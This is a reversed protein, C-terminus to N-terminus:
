GTTRLGSAIANTLLLLEAFSEDDERSGHERWRKLTAIQTAHLAALPADRLQLTKAMRPRRQAFPVGYLATIHEHAARFESLIWEMFRRQVDDDTVLRAYAGFVHESASQLTTEINTFLYRVTEDEAVGACLREWRDPAGERLARLATGVGYWGPLYFRAQNWSFVWPIARLDDLTAAGGRRAPRSGIKSREIVDIPTAERFFTVFHELQLLEAYAAASTAVLEALVARLEPHVPESKEALLGQTITSACLVELHYSATLRNAYKQAIMEGQETIRIGEGLSGPPLASAFRHMPGAGRSITGGRGHFFRIAVGLREGVALIREQAEHLSWASAIIGADKCSDSYGLMVEQLPQPTGRLGQVARLSRQVYPHALYEELIAPSRELDERTEFLPVVPLPAVYGDEDQVLFDAEKILLHAALLDSSDRTMSVIFSLVTRDRGGRSRHHLLRLLARLEDGEEGAPTSRRLLPRASLLEAGLVERRREFSWERFQPDPMRSARLLQETARELYASNQRVDLAALQFGFTAVLDQVRALDQEAIRHARIAQLSRELLRLDDTLESPTRYAHATATGFPLRARMVNIAERWPEDPHRRIAQHVADAAAHRSNYEDLEHPVDQLQRSFSLRAGLEELETDILDLAGRRLDELVRETIETTVYPHGDRDGGVWSAFRLRPAPPPAADAGFHRRWATVFRRRLTPVVDPFVHVLYHLVNRAESDLDPKEFFVEGTRLLRELAAEVEDQLAAREDETWMRNELQVLLVYLRRHHELVTARKAETPHATLTPVIEVRRLQARLTEESIGNQALRQLEAAWLGDEPEHPAIHERRRRSQNATNEEVSNLLQFALSLVQVSRPALQTERPLERDIWPLAAAGETDGIDALVTRLRRMLARLDDDWKSSEYAFVSDDPM